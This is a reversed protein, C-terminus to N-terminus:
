VMYLNVLLYFAGSFILVFFYLFLLSFFKRFTKFYTQRYFNKMAIYLYLLLVIFLWNVPLAYGTTLYIILLLLMILFAFAHYHLTFVAHDVFYIQKRIFILKLILAFIPILVFLLKPLNHITNESFHEIMERKDMSSLRIAMRDFGKQISGPQAEQPLRNISDEYEKVTSPLNTFNLELPAALDESDGITTVSRIKAMSDSALMNSIVPSLIKSLSDLKLAAATDKAAVDMKVQDIATNLSDSTLASVSELTMNIQNSGMTGFLIFFIISLFFYLQVPHVYRVRKGAIFENTLFGPKYLLPGLTNLFKSDFHWYHAFAHGIMIYFPEHLHEDKQGCAYCYHGKLITGCNLCAKNEFNGATELRDIPILKILAAIEANAYMSYSDVLTGKIGSSTSLLYLVASDEPDSSGEVRNFAEIVLHSAAFVENTEICRLRQGEVIFRHTYAEAEAAKLADLLNDYQNDLIM